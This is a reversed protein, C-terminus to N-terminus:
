NTNKTKYNLKAVLLTNKETINPKRSHSLVKDGSGTNDFLKSIFSNM